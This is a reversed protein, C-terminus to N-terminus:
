RRWNSISGSYPCDWLFHNYLGLSGWKSVFRINSTGGSGVGAVIGSHSGNNWYTKDGVKIASVKSYSGDNMYANPNSIWYYNGTSAWYWAYSHCNYKKTPDSLRNAGPYATSYYANLADKESRTWDTINRM